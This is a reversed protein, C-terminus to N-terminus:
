RERRLEESYARMTRVHDVAFNGSVDARAPIDKVVVSGIRVKAHDGVVLANSIVASAGIWCGTGIRARGAIIAHSSVTSGPGISADHGVNALIGIHARAGVHTVEGLIASRAIVAGAHIFAGEDIRVGGFHPIHQRVGEIEKAYLGDCGIVSSAEIHVGAGIHAPGLVVARPGIHAGSEVVVQGQLVASADVHAQAHVTQADRTPGTMQRAHLYHFLEDPQECCILCLRSSTSADGRVDQRTIVAVVQPNSLAQALYQRNAAQCIVGPQRTWVFGTQRVQDLYEAGCIRTIGFRPAVRELVEHLPQSWGAM